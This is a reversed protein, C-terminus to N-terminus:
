KIITQKKKLYFFVLGAGVLLMPLIWNDIPVDQVDDTFGPTQAFISQIQVLAIVLAYGIKTKNKMKNSIIIRCDM